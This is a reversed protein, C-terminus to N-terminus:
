LIGIRQAEKFIKGALEAAELGGKGGHEVFVTLAVKPNEVPSFGGFWAHSPGNASQATGTKGAVTFGDIKANTGSGGATVGALIDSSIASLILITALFAYVIKFIVPKERLSNIITFLSGNISSIFVM